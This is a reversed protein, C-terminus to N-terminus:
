RARKRGTPQEPYAGRMADRLDRHLASREEPNLRRRESPSEEAAHRSTLVRRLDHRAGEQERVVEASSRAQAGGPLSCIAILCVLLAGTLGHPRRVSTAARRLAFLNSALPRSAPKPTM